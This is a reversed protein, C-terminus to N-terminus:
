SCSSIREIREFPIIGIDEMKKKFEDAFRHAYKEKIDTILDYYKELNNSHQDLAKDYEDDTLTDPIDELEGVEELYHKYHGIEHPLTRYLQTNRISTSNCKILYERKTSIVEHGDKTLRDMENQGDPTLSKSWKITKDPNVSELIVAPRYNSEFEYSYVLRGWASNLIEEKRKPQRFIILNLRGYDLPEIHRLIEVCDDITCFHASDKRTQEVVFEFQNGNITRFHKTYNVLREEFSKMVPAPWPIVLKNYSGQGQKSTGINRNRRLPNYM